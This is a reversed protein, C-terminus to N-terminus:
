KAKIGHTASAVYSTVPVAEIAKTFSSDPAKATSVATTESIAAIGIAIGAALLM